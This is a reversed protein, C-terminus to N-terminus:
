KLAAEARGSPEPLGGDCREGEERASGVGMGARTSWLLHESLLWQAARGRCFCPPRESIQRVPSAPFIALELPNTDGLAMMKQLVSISPSRAPQRRALLVTRGPKWSLFVKLLLNSVDSLKLQSM